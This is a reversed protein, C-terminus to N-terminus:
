GPFLPQGDESTLEQSDESLLTLLTAGGSITAGWAGVDWGSVYDNEVDFGFLPSGPVTTILFTSMVGIPRLPILGQSIVGQFVAPPLVGAIGLVMAMGGKDEIFLLSGPTLSDNFLISLAAMAAPISVDWHNAAIVARLLLRYTDDDLATIGETPDYLGRWYGGEWGLGPVDWSFYAGTIPIEVYRSRGVWQGVVDLQVGVAVDLDFALPITAVFNQADVFPQVNLAVTAVFDPQGRHESTILNLYTDVIVTM